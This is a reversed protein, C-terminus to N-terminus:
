DERGGAGYYATTQLWSSRSWRRASILLFESHVSDSLSNIVFVAVSVTLLIFNSLGFIANSNTRLDPSRAAGLFLHIGNEDLAAPQASAVRGTSWTIFRRRPPANPGLPAEIEIVRFFFVFVSIQGAILRFVTSPLVVAAVALRTM